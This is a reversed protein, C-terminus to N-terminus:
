DQTGFINPKNKILKPLLNSLIPADPSKFFVKKIRGKNKNQFLKKSCTNQNKLLFINYNSLIFIYKEFYLFRNNKGYKRKIQM